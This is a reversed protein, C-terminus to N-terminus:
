SISVPKEPDSTLTFLPAPSSDRPSYISPAATLHCHNCPLNLAGALTTYKSFTKQFFSRTDSSSLHDPKAQPFLYCTSVKRTFFCGTSAHDCMCRGFLSRSQGAPTHRAPSRPPARAPRLPTSRVYPHAAARGISPGRAAGWCGWSLPWLSRSPALWGALWGLLWNALRPLIPWKASLFFQVGGCGGDVM